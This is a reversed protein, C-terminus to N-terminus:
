RMLLIVFVASALVCMIQILSYLGVKKYTVLKGIIFPVVAFFLMIARSLCGHLFVVLAFALIIYFLLISTLVPVFHEAYDSKFKSIYFIQVAILSALLFSIFIFLYQLVTLCM